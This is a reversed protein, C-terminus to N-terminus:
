MFRPDAGSLVNFENLVKPKTIKVQKGSISEDEILTEIHKELGNLL